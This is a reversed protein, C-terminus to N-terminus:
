FTRGNWGWSWREVNVFRIYVRDKPIKLADEIFLCLDQSLAPTSDTPLNISELVLVATPQVTGAFCMPTKAQLSVMVYSESKGLAHAVTRSANELLSTQQEPKVEVNTQIQLFPM